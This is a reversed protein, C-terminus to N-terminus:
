RKDKWGLLNNVANIRSFYYDELMDFQSDYYRHVIAETEEKTKNKIDKGYLNHNIFLNGINFQHDYNCWVLKVLYQFILEVDEENELDLDTTIGEEKFMEAHDLYMYRINEYFNEVMLKKINYTFYPINSNDGWYKKSLLYEPVKDELMNVLNMEVHKLSSISNEIYYLTESLLMVFQEEGTLDRDVVSKVNPKTKKDTVKEIIHDIYGTDIIRYVQGGNNYEELAIQKMVEKREELSM